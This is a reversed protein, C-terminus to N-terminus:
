CADTYCVQVESICSRWSQTDGSNAPAGGAADRLQQDELQRLTERNLTLKRPTKRDKKM